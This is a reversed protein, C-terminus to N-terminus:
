ARSYVYPPVPDNEEGRRPYRIQTAWRNLAAPTPKWEPDGFDVGTALILSGPIYELPFNASVGMGSHGFIMEFDVRYFWPQFERSTPTRMVLAGPGVMVSNIEYYGNVIAKQLPFTLEGTFRTIKGKPYCTDIWYAPAHTPTYRAPGTLLKYRFVHWKNYISPHPLKMAQKINQM